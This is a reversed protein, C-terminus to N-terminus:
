LTALKLYEAVGFDLIHILQKSKDFESWINKYNEQKCPHLRMPAIEAMPWLVFANVLIEPRPLIVGEIDGVFDDYLLIDIDLTRSGDTANNRLCGNAQEVNRLFGQLEGLALDTTIEVVLNYFPNGEFGVSASEYVSSIADITFHQRLALVGAKVHKEREINSGIGLFVKAM